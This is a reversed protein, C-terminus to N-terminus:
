VQWVRSFLRAPWSQSILGIGLVGIGYVNFQLICFQTMSIQPNFCNFFPTVSILFQKLDNSQSSNPTKTTARPLKPNCAKENQFDRQAFEDSDLECNVRM